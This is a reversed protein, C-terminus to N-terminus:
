ETALAANEQALEAEIRNVQRKKWRGAKYVIVNIIMGLTWASLLSVFVMKQQTLVPAGANRAIAVLIYALPVRILISTALSIWMPTVTDGAGRMVGSLSQTISMAVYGPSIIYMM